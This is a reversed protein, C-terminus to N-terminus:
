LQSFYVHLLYTIKESINTFNTFDVYWTYVSGCQCLAVSFQSGCEVKIVRLGKLCDIRLPLKCGESGGRGLFVAYLLFRLSYFIVINSVMTVTKGLKGYDGDGWSWVNDDSTICLTQADGSGCAVDIVRYQSLSEVQIIVILKYLIKTILFM